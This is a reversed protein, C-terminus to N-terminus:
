FMPRKNKTIASIVLSMLLGIVASAILGFLLLMGPSSFKQSMEITQEIQAETYTGAEELTRRTADLVKQNFEPDIVTRYLVGFVASMAGSVVSVLVGIGLGESYSMFGENNRKFENHAFVIALVSIIVSAGMIIINASNGLSM